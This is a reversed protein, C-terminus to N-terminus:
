GKKKAAGKGKAGQRAATSNEIKEKRNEAGAWPKLARFSAILAGYLKKNHRAGFATFLAIYASLKAPAWQELLDRDGGMEFGGYKQTECPLGFHARLVEEYSGILCEHGISEAADVLCRQPLEGPAIALLTKLLAAASLKEKAQRKEEAAKEKARAKTIEAQRAAEAAQERARREREQQKADNDDGADVAKNKRAAAMEAKIRVREAEAKEAEKKRAEANEADRKVREEAQRKQEKIVKIHERLESESILSIGPKWQGDRYGGDFCQRLLDKQEDQPERAILVAHSKTIRGAKLAAIVEPAVDPKSLDLLDRISRAHGPIGLDEALAEVSAYTGLTMLRAYAASMELPTLDEKQTKLIIRRRALELGPAGAVIEVKIHTAGILKLARSRRHGEILEFLPREIRLGRFEEDSLRRVQGAELNVGGENVMTQALSALREADYVTRENEPSEVVHALPIFHLGAEATRWAGDDLGAVRALDAGHAAFLVDPPPASMGTQTGNGAATATSKGKEKKRKGDIVADM